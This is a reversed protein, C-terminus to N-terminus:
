KEVKRASRALRVGHRVGFGYVSIVFCVAAVILFASGSM